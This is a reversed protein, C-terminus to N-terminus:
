LKRRRALGLGVFGLALVGYFSPEPVITLSFIMDNYDRDSDGPNFNSDEVGILYTVPVSQAEALTKAFVSFYQNGPSGLNLSSQSFKAKSSTYLDTITTNADSSYDSLFWLGFSSTPAFTNNIAGTTQTGNFIVGFASSETDYWGLWNREKWGAVEAKMQTGGSAGQFSFDAVATGYFDGPGNALYVPANWAIAQSYSDNKFYNDSATGTNTIFCGINACKGDSDLTAQNWYANNTAANGTLKESTIGTISTQQWFGAGSPVVVNANM